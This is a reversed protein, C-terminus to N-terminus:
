LAVLRLPTYTLVVQDRQNLVVNRTRVLGRVGSSTPRSEIVEVTVRITDGVVSPAQVDIEAALFALGVFQILPVVLGEAFTYILSAPVVRGALAREAQDDSNVFLAETFWTLNVFTVLDTETITRGMTRFRAGVTLDDYAIGRGLLPYAGDVSEIM